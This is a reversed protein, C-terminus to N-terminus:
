AMVVKATLKKTSKLIVFLGFFLYVSGLRYNGINMSDNRFNNKLFNAFIAIAM